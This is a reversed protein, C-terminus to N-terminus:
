YIIQQKTYENLSIYSDIDKAFIRDYYIKQERMSEKEVFLESLIAKYLKRDTDEVHKYISYKYPYNFFLESLYLLNYYYDFGKMLYPSKTRFLHGSNINKILKCRGGELWVKISILQEDFGYFRLGELGRLYTWYMKNTAYAAGLVCPINVVDVSPEINRKIWLPTLVLNTAFDIYAGYGLCSESDKYVIDGEKKLPITSCCFLARKDMNLEKLILEVWDNQFFRMHGDLLLFFETSCFEVGENRSFAVGKREKHYIYTLDFENAVIEYDYGDESADNILIINIEDGATERLNKVTNYIEEGENLFPIIVTLENM